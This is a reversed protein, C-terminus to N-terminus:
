SFLRLAQSGGAPLGYAAMAAQPKAVFERRIHDIQAESLPQRNDDVVIGHLTEAFRRALEVMQYFVREGHDVRPVDLVFTLGHTSLSRIEEPSFLTSELNQLRFQVRGEDDYRTFLGDEGLTMGAAEALARIKTGSFPAGQAVLNVGIELDVEACFRDLEAAQVLVRSPPMDAVAMLDDALAQMAGTFVALDGDRVPGRRDAMQLGIRLRRYSLGGDPVIREWERSRENFGIWHVAKAIRELAAGQSAVIQHAPVAEVLELTVIFELRPDLLALPVEGAPIEAVEDVDELPEVRVKLPEGDSPVDVTVAGAPPESLRPEVRQAPGALADAAPAAPAAAPTEGGLLVDAHRSKMVQDALKRAKRDQWVNYGFVGAVAAAGLGILGMQLETM